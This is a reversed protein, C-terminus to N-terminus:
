LERVDIVVNPYGYSAGEVHFVRTEGDLTVVMEVPEPAQVDYWHDREITVFAGTSSDPAAECKEADFEYAEGDPGLGTVREPATV